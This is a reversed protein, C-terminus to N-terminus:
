YNKIKEQELVLNRMIIMTIIQIGNKLFIPMLIEAIVQVLM